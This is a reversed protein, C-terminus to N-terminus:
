RTVPARPRTAFRWLAVLAWLGVLVAAAVPLLGRQQDLFSKKEVIEVIGQALIAQHGGGADDDYEATVFIPYRSGPLATRNLLSASVTQEGWAPLTLEQPPQSTVELGEPVYATLTLKRPAASLNKLKLDLSGSSALPTAKVEPISLKPPVPTGIIVPIMQLAQFPYQNADTYDVTLRFPWRGPGLDGTQMALADEVSENAGLSQRLQGKVEKDRFHLTPLISQAAEDGANGIKVRVTVTGPTVEVTPAVTISINKASAPVALVLVALLPFLRM